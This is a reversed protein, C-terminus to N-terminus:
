RARAAPAAAAKAPAAASTAKKLLPLGTRENEVVQYGAPLANVAGEGAAGAFYYITQKQGGKLTVLKSHLFYTKGSKKSVTSYAM